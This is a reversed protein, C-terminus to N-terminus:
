PLRGTRVFDFVAKGVSQPPAEVLNAAGRAIRVAQLLTDLRAVLQHKKPAPIAGSVKVTTWHGVVVDETLVKTQAPHETTAPYLVIPRETKKTRHTTTPVSKFFNTTPDLMWEDGPDLEALKSVFTKYDVLQKELFLLHTAPVAALLVRDDVVVDAKANQNAWDKAAVADLSETLLAVARDLMEEHNFQARQSEPPYTEGEEHLRQFTKSFGTFAAPKQGVLHLASIETNVRQRVGREIALIQFLKHM